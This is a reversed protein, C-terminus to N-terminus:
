CGKSDALRSSQDKDRRIYLGKQPAEDASKTSTEIFAFGELDDCENTSGRLREHCLLPVVQQRGGVLDGAGVVVVLVLLSDALVGGEQEADRAGQQEGPLVDFLLDGWGSFRATLGRSYRSVGLCCTRCHLTWRADDM